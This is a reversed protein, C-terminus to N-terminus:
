RKFYGLRPPAATHSTIPGEQTTSKFCTAGEGTAQSPERATWVKKGLDQRNTIVVYARRERQGRRNKRMSKPPGKAPGTDAFDAEADSWDDDGRSPIFGTSLSPLFMSADPSVRRRKPPEDSMAEDSSDEMDTDSGSAVMADLDDADRAEMGLNGMGDDSEYADEPPPSSARAKHKRKTDKEQKSVQTTDPKTDSAAAAPHVLAVLAQLCTQIEEALVKSSLVQHMAREEPGAQPKPWADMSAHDLGHEHALALLPFEHAQPDRAAPKPLLKSKVLKTSLARMGLVHPDMQKLFTLEQELTSEAAADAAAQAKKLRRVHKQREFQAARKAASRAVKISHHKTLM